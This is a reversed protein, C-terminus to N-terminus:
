KRSSKMITNYLQKTNIETQKVINGDIYIFSHPDAIINDPTDISTKSVQIKAGGYEKKKVYAMLPAYNSNNISSNIVETTSADKSAVGISSDQIKVNSVKVISREGSSIAKDSVVNFESNDIQVKSGSLDIADGGGLIGIKYFSCNSIDGTSFDTDIADSDTSTIECDSLRFKSSIINIADESHVDSINIDTLNIESKYVSLAGTLEVGEFKVASVNKMNLGNIMSNSGAHMLYLWGSNGNGIFQVKELDGKIEIPITSIVGAGDEFKLITGAPFVVKEYGSIKIINSIKWEGKAFYIANEQKNLTIVGRDLLEDLNNNNSIIPNPLAQYYLEVDEELRYNSDLSTIIFKANKMSEYPVNRIVTYSKGGTIVKEKLTLPLHNSFIKILQSELLPDPHIVAKVIVKNPIASSLELDYSLGSNNKVLYVHTNRVKSYDFDSSSTSLINEDIWRARRELDAYDYAQLLYFEGYLSTSYEKELKSLQSTLTGNLVDKTLVALSELYIKHIRKDQLMKTFFKDKIVVNFLRREHFNDDYGIPQLKGIYPNYYFRLNGWRVGHQAGWLQNIALFMGMEFPDFADSASLIGDSYGRLLGIANKNYNQLVKSKDIRSKRFPDAKTNTYDYIEGFEWSDSENYRAIVSDKRGSNELLEKSFHEEVEMLGINNGNVIVNVLQRRLSILGYIKRTSDILYQGQFGRVYPNQISFRRMGMISDNGKTKVRFSWKNGILHDINDGKIRLEVKIKKSKFQIKAPVYDGDKQVIVGAEIAENRKEQLKKFHKFKIDFRMTPVHSTKLKAKAYSLPLRKIAAGISEPNIAKFGLEFATDRINQVNGLLLPMAILAILSIFTFLVSIFCLKRSLVFKTKERKLVRTNSVHM